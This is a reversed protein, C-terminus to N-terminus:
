AKLTSSGAPWFNLSPNRFNASERCIGWGDFLVGTGNSGCVLQHCAKVKRWLLFAGITLLGTWFLLAALM